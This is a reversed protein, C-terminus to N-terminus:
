NTQLQQYKLTAKLDVYKDTFASFRNSLALYYTGPKLRVEFSGNTEKGQTSWYVQAQHGNIWNTYGSEDALGAAIDNGQGGAATFTGSVMPDRMEPTITIPYNVASGHRVVVQGSAISITMPVYHPQPAFLPSSTGGSAAAQSASNSALNVVIVVAVACAAIVALIKLFSPSKAGTTQAPASLVAPQRLQSRVQARYQEEAQHKREEDEIRQKEETTLM